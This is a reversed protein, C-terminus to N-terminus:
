QSTKLWERIGTSDLFIWTTYPPLKEIYPLKISFSYVVEQNNIYDKDGAGYAIGSLKCLPLEMRSLLMKGNRNEEVFSLANRSTSSMAQAVNTALRQANNELKEKVSVFREAQIQRKLTNVRDTLSGIVTPQDEPSVTLKADSDIPKSMM